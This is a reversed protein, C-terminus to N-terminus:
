GWVPPPKAIMSCATVDTWPPLMFTGQREVEAFGAYRIMKELTCSSMVWFANNEGPVAEEKAYGFSLVPRDPFKEDWEPEIATEIIAYERTVSRIAHLAGLPNQLHLLLSGCFVIDFMGVTYPSLDYVNCPKYEVRSRRMAHALRFHRPWPDGMAAEALRDRMHPVWDCDKMRAVDIATVRAAGRREMEFAFFGDGTGVDLVEKGRLSEPIGYRHAVPRHDFFGESVLGNGLEITHYWGKLRPDDQRTPLDIM